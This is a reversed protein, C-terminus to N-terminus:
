QLMLIETGINYIVKKHVVGPGVPGVGTGVPGVGPGVPWRWPWRGHALFRDGVCVLGRDVGGPGRFSRKNPSCNRKLHMKKFFVNFM